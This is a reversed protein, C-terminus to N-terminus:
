RLAGASDAIALAEVGSAAIAQSEDGGLGGLRRHLRIVTSRVERIVADRAAETIGDIRCAPGVLIRITNPCVYWRRKPNVQLSGEIAVPVLPVRAEMAVHFAGKKFPLVSGDASRTGEAFIMVSQGARIKEGAAKMSAIAKERNGRDVSIYKAASIFWGIFPYSFVSKKAVFVFPKVGGLGEFLALIDYNGQHNCVFIVPGEPLPEEFITEVKVFSARIVHIGWARAIWAAFSPRFPMLLMGLSADVVSIVSAAVLTWVFFLFGLARPWKRLPLVPLPTTPGASAPPAADSM